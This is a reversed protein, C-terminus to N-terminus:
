SGPPVIKWDDFATDGGEETYLGVWGLSFSKDTGEVTKTGDLVATLKTGTFTVSLTHWEKLKLTPVELTAVVRQIGKELALIRLSKTVGDVRAVYYNKRDRVRFAIGGGVGKMGAIPQLRVSVTGDTLARGDGTAVVLARPSEIMEHQRLVHNGEKTADTVTEWYGTVTLLDAPKDEGEPVNEFGFEARNAPGAKTADPLKVAQAEEEAEAVIADFEKKSVAVAKVTVTEGGRDVVLVVEDGPKVDRTLAKFAEGLYKKVAEDDKVDLSSTDPVDKGRIKLLVDGVKLGGKEAPSGLWVQNVVVGNPRVIHLERRQEESFAQLIAPQYGLYGRTEDVPDPPPDDARARGAVLALGGLLAFALAHTRRM